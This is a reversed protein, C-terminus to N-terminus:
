VTPPHKLLDTMAYCLRDKKKDSRLLFGRTEASSELGLWNCRLQPRQQRSEHSINGHRGSEQGWTRVIWTDHKNNNNNNNSNSNCGPKCQLKRVGSYLPLRQPTTTLANSEPGLTGVHSVRPVLNRANRTRARNHEQVLCKVRVTGREGLLLHTGAVFHQPPPPPPPRPSRRYLMGDLHLLM